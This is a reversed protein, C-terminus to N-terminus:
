HALKKSNGQEDEIVNMIQDKGCSPCRMKVDRGSNPPMAWLSNTLSQKFVASCNPCVCRHNKWIRTLRFMAYAVALIFLGWIIWEFLGGQIINFIAYIVCAAAVATFFGFAILESSRKM